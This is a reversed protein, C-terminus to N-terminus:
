RIYRYFQALRQDFKDAFDAIKRLYKERGLLSDDKTLNMAYATRRDYLGTSVEPVRGRRKQNKKKENQSTREQKRTRVSTLM